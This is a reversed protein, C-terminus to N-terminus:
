FHKIRNGKSIKNTKKTTKIKNTNKISKSMKSISSINSNNNEFNRKQNAEKNKNIKKKKRLEDAKTTRDDIKKDAHDIIELLNNKNYKDGYTEYMIKEFLGYQRMLLYSFYISKVYGIEDKPNKEEAKKKLALKSMKSELDEIIMKNAKMAHAFTFVFSPDNSYFRVYYEKLSRSAVLEKRDTYFEIVTDYYFKEIAESPIKFHVFFNDKSKYLTYKIKGTERVIIKDLKEKYLNRYMERNGYVSNKIGMPNSIYQDFTMKM